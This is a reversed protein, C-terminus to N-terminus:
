HHRAHRSSEKSSCVYESLDAKTASILYIAEYKSNSVDKSLQKLDKLEGNYDIFVVLAMGKVYSDDRASKRKVENIIASEIDSPSADAAVETVMVQEFRM